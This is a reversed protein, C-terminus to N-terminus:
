LNAWCFGLSVSPWSLWTMSLSLSLLLSLPHRRVGAAHSTQTFGFLSSSGGPRWSGFYGKPLLRPTIASSRRSWGNKSTRCRKRRRNKPSPRRNCCGRHHSRTWAPINTRPLAWLWLLRLSIRRVGACSSIHFLARRRAATYTYPFVGRFIPMAVEVFDAHESHRLMTPLFLHKEWRDISHRVM